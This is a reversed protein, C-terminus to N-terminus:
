FAFFTYTAGVFVGPEITGKPTITVGAGVSFGWRRPPSREHITVTERLSFLRLSDLRPDVPGSVWAEYRGASDTYHNQVVPLTVAASDVNGSDAAAVPAIVVTDRVIRMSAPSPAAITVTDRITDRVTDRVVTVRDRDSHRQLCTPAFYLLASVMCAVSLLVAVNRM